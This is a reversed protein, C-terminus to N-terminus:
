LLKLTYDDKDVHIRCSVTKENITKNLERATIRTVPYITDAKILCNEIDIPEHELEALQKKLHAEQMSLVSIRLRTNASPQINEPSTDTDYNVFTSNKELETRETLIKELAQSLDNRQQSMYPLEGIVLLTPRETRCGITRAEIRNAAILKGGIITGRGVKAVIQNDSYVFSSIISSAQVTDGAYIICSEIYETQVNGGAKIVAKEDGLIGKAIFIDKGAEIIAGEVLGDITVTGTARVIFNERVDGCIHVDGLFEINGTNLDVDGPVYYSPKVHFIGNEYKLHGDMSAVIQLKDSSLATNQGLHPKAPEGNKAPLVNGFIDMGDVGNTPPVIECIVDGTHIIQIYNQTRYDVDGRENVAFSKEVERKFNEKISGNKGPIMPTGYAVPILKFYPQEEVLYNLAESRIGSCVSYEHLAMYLQARQLPKGNGSPPFAFAWAAMRRQATHVVIYADIDPVVGDEDPQVMRHYETAKMMLHVTARQKEEEIESDSMPLEPTDAAELVLEFSELNSFMESLDNRAKEDGSADMTEKWDKWISFLLSDQSVTVIGRGSIPEEATDTSSPESILETEPSVVADGDSGRRLINERIREFLSLHKGSERHEEDM